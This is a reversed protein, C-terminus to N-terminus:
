YCARANARIHENKFMSCLVVSRPFDQLIQKIISEKRQGLPAGRLPSFLINPASSRCKIADTYGDDFPSINFQLADFQTFYEAHLGETGRLFSLGWARIKGESRLTSAMAALDDMEVLSQLPEHLLLWDLRDTRLRQLSREVSQKMGKPTIVVHAHLRNPMRVLKSSPQLVTTTKRLSGWFFRVIPKFPNLVRTIPTSIIGFKTALVVRDRQGLLTRGLWNEAEGFGYSPAIDFHTVGVDLAIEVARGATNGDIAGLISACGFGLVSSRLGPALEITRM